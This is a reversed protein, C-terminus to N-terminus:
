AQQLGRKRSPFIAQRQRSYRGCAVTVGVCDGHGIKACTIIVTQVPVGFQKDMVGAEHLQALHNKSKPQRKFYNIEQFELMRTEPEGATVQEDKVLIGDVKLRFLSNRVSRSLADFRKSEGSGSRIANM